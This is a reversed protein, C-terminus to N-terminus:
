LTVNDSSKNCNLLRFMSSDRSRTLILYFVVKFNQGNSEM